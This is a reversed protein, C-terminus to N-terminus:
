PAGCGNNERTVYTLDDLRSSVHLHRVEWASRKNLQNADLAAQAMKGMAMLDIELNRLIAHKEDPDDVVALFQKADSLLGPLHRRIFVAREILEPNLTSPVEALQLLAACAAQADSFDAGPLIAFARKWDDPADDDIVADIDASRIVAAKRDSGGDATCAASRSAKCTSNGERFRSVMRFIPLYSGLAVVLFLLSAKSGDLGVIQPGLFGLSGALLLTICVRVIWEIIIEGFCIFILASVGVLILPVAM